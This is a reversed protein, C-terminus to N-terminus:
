RAMDAKLRAYGAMYTDGSDGRKMQRISCRLVGKTATKGHFFARQHIIM